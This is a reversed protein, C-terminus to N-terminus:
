RKNKCPPQSSPLRSLLARTACAGTSSYLFSATKRSLRILGAAAELWRLFCRRRWSGALLYSVKTEQVVNQARRPSLSSSVFSSLSVATVITTVFEAKEHSRRVEVLITATKYKREGKEDRFEDSSTGNYRWTKLYRTNGDRCLM